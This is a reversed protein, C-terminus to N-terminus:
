RQNPLKDPPSTFQRHKARGWTTKVPRPVTHSAPAYGRPPRHLQPEYVYKKKPVAKGQTPGMHVNSNDQNDTERVENDQSDPIDPKKDDGHWRITSLRNRLRNALRNIVTAVKQNEHLIFDPDNSPAALQRGKKKQIKKASAAGTLLIGAAASPLPPARPPMSTETTEGVHNASGNTYPQAHGNATIDPPPYTHGNPTHTMDQMTHNDFNAYDHEAYDNTYTHDEPDTSALANKPKRRSFACFALLALILALFIFAAVASAVIVTPFATVPPASVVCTHIM